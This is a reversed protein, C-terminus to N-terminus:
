TPSEQVLRWGPPLEDALVPPRRELELVRQQLTAILTHAQVLATLIATLTPDM